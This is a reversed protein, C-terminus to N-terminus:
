TARALMESFATELHLGSLLSASEWEAPASISPYRWAEDNQKTSARVVPM